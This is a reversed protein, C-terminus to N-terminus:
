LGKQSSFIIREDNMVGQGAPKRHAAIKKIRQNKKKRTVFHHGTQTIKWLLAFDVYARDLIFITGRPFQSLDISKLAKVDHTKADTMVIVDPIQRRVDLSTHLKIGGKTKRFKAWDFLTRCLDITTSDIARLENSFSFNEKPVIDACKQLFVSFLAEYIKAPRHENAYAITSRTVNKLGLDMWISDLSRLGLVIDRLSEKGAIQAYFMVTLQNWCSLTKVYRDANHQGVFVHFQQEPLLALLQALVTAAHHCM